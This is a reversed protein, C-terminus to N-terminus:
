HPATNCGAEVYLRAVHQQAEDIKRHGGDVAGNRWGHWYSRSFISALPEPAGHLGEFYGAFIDDTDLAELEELSTIRAFETM